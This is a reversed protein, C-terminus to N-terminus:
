SFFRTYLAFSVFRLSSKGKGTKMIYCPFKYMKSGGAECIYGRSQSCQRNIWRGFSTMSVCNPFGQSSSPQGTGWNTFKVPSSDTWYFTGDTLFDNLGIWFVSQTGILATILFAQEYRCNTFFLSIFQDILVVHIQDHM